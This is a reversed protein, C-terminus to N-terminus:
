RRRKALFCLFLGLPMCVVAARFFPGLCWPSHGSFVGTLVDGFVGAFAAVVLFVVLGGTGLAGYIVMSFGLAFVRRPWGDPLGRRAALLLGAIFVAGAMFMAPVVGLLFYDPWFAQGLTLILGCYFSVVLLNGLSLHYFGPAAFPEERYLKRLRAPALLALLLTSIPWLNLWAEGGNPFRFEEEALIILFIVTGGVGLALACWWIRKRTAIKM